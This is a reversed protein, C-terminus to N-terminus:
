VLRPAPLPVRYFRPVFNAIGTFSALCQSASFNFFPVCTSMECLIRKRTAGKTDSGQQQIKRLVETMDEVEDWLELSVFIPAM